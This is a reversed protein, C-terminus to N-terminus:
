PQRCSCMEGEEVQEVTCWAQKTRGSTRKSYFVRWKWCPNVLFLDFPDLETLAQLVHVICEIGVRTSMACQFPDTTKEVHSSIQQAITRAM